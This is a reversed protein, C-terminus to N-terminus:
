LSPMLDLLSIRSNTPFLFYNDQGNFKPQPLDYEKMFKYFSLVTSEKLRKLEERGIFWHTDPYKLCMAYLWMCGLYTKAGGAAGGYILYNIKDDRLYELALKQKPLRYIDKNVNM